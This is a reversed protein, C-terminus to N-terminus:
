GHAVKGGSLFRDIFEQLKMKFGAAHKHGGGGYYKAIESVDQSTPSAQNSRLSAVVFDTDLMFWTISYPVGESLLNGLDSAFMGNANCIAAPGFRTNIVRAGKSINNVTIKNARNIAAGESILLAVNSEMMDTDFQSAWYSFEFKRSNLAAHFCECSLEYLEKFQPLKHKWLDRMGILTVWTPESEAVFAERWVLQAGSRSMDFIVYVNKDLEPHKIWMYEQTDDTKLHINKPVFQMLEQQATKHHDIITIDHNVKAMANLQLRDYSFDVIFIHKDVFQPHDEGYQVPFYDATDKFWLWSIFASAFGDTCNAHYLVVNPKGETQTVSVNGFTATSEIM